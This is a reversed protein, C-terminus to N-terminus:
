RCNSGPLNGIGPSGAVVSRVNRPDALAEADAVTLTPTVMTAMAFAEIGGEGGRSSTIWISNTGLVELTSTVMEQAGRGVSMLTIVAGVGIVIGLMTLSSRLKNASLARRAIVFSDTLRM